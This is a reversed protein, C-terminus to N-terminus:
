LGEVMCILLLVVECNFHSTQMPFEHWDESVSLLLMSTTKLQGFGSSTKMTSITFCM